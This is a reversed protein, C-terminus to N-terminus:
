NVSMETETRLLQITESSRRQRHEAPFYNRVGTLNVEDLINQSSSNEWVCM